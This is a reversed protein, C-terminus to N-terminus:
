PQQHLGGDGEPLGGAHADGCARWFPRDVVGEEEWRDLNPVLHQAFVKRVQERFIKLDEDFITRASTDLM